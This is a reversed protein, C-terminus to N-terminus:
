FDVVLEKLVILEAPKLKCHVQSSRQTIHNVDVPNTSSLHAFSTLPPVRSSSLTTTSSYSSTSNMSQVVEKTFVVVAQQNPTMM